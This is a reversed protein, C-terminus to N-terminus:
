KAKKRYLLLKLQKKNVIFVNPSMKENSRSVLENNVEKTVRILSNFNCQGVLIPKFFFASLRKSNIINYIQIDIESYATQLFDIIKPISKNNIIYAHFGWFKPGNFISCISARTKQPCKRNYGLFFFDESPNKNLEEIILTNLDDTLIKADDEFIVSYSYASDILSKYLSVHSLFCGIEGKFKYNYVIKLDYTSFDTNNGDIAEFINIPFGLKTEMIKINEKRDSATKMSIVHYDFLYENM